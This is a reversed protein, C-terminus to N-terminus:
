NASRNSKPCLYCFCITKERDRKSCKYVTATMEDINHLIQEKTRTKWNKHVLTEVIGVYVIDNFKTTPPNDDQIVETIKILFGEPTKYVAHGAIQDAFSSYYGHLM